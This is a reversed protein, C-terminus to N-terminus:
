GCVNNCRSECESMCNDRRWSQLLRDCADECVDVCEGCEDNSGNENDSGSDYEECQGEMGELCDRKCDVEDLGWKDDCKDRCHDAADAVCDEFSQGSETDSANNSDGVNEQAAESTNSSNGNAGDQVQSCVGQDDCVRSWGENFRCIYTTKCEPDCDTRREEYEGGLTKCAEYQKNSEAQAFPAAIALIISVATTTLLWRTFQRTM